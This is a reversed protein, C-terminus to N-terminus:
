IEFNSQVSQPRRISNDSQISDSDVHMRRLGTCQVSLRGDPQVTFDTIACESLIEPLTHQGGMTAALASM